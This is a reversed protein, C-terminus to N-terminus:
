RPRELCGHSSIGGWLHRKSRASPISPAEDIGCAELLQRGPWGAMRHATVNFHLIRRRDHCSIVLVFLVLFTVTAVTFFDLAILEKAPNELFTRWSQSLPRRHRIMSKSVSAECVDIGLKM